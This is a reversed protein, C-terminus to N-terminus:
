RAGTPRARATVFVSIEDNRGNVFDLRVRGDETESVIAPVSCNTLSWGAPLVVANRPRGLARDWVLEGNELRYRAADTYTEHIRLRFSQGKGVKPFRVVVAESEPKVPGGIDVGAKTIADGKLTEVTLPQGTDLAIARPNSVTSGARVVNVYRDAGEKTETFDHFLDFAHSEPANLFYVIERDQRARESLREARDTQAWVPAALGAALLSLVRRTM